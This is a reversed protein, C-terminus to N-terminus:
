CIDRPFVPARAFTAARQGVPSIMLSGTSSGTVAEAMDTKM